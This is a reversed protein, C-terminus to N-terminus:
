GVGLRKQINGGEKIFPYSVSKIQLLSSKIKRVDKTRLKLKKPTLHQPYVKM